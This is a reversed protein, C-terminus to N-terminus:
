ISLVLEKLAEKGEIRGTKIDADFDTVLQYMNALDQWSFHQVSVTMKSVQFPALSTLKSIAYQNSSKELAEKVQCLSRLQFGIMALIKLPPESSDLLAQLSELVNKKNLDTLHDIFNFINASINKTVLEEVSEATIQKSSYCALKQIENDLRWLDDGIFEYLLNLAKPEIETSNERAIERALQRWANEDLPRFEQAIKPRNLAKFLVTRKDPTGRQVFVAVTSKSVTELTNKIKEMVEKNKNAFINEIIILRSSALLPMAQTQASYQEYTLNVGDLGVLNLEGWKKAYRQKLLTLKKTMLYDNPGYFFLIM